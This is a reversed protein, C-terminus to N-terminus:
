TSSGAQDNQPTLHAAPGPERIVTAPEKDLQISPKRRHQLDERRRRGKYLSTGSISPLSFVTSAGSPKPWQPNKGRHWLTWLLSRLSPDIPGRLTLRQAGVKGSACLCSRTDVVKRAM